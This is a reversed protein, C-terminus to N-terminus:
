VTDPIRGTGSTVDRDRRYRYIRLSGLVILGVVMGVPISVARRGAIEAPPDPTFEHTAGDTMGLCDDYTYRGGHPEGTWPNFGAPELTQVRCLGSTPSLPQSSTVFFLAVGLLFSSFLALGVEWSVPSSLVRQLVSRVTIRPGGATM